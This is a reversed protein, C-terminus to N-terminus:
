QAYNALEKQLDTGTKGLYKSVATLGNGLKTAYKGVKKLETPGNPVDLSQGGNDGSGKGDFLNSKQNSIASIVDNVIGDFHVNDTFKPITLTGKFGTGKWLTECINMADDRKQNLVLEQVVTKIILDSM